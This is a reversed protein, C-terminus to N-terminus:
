RSTPIQYTWTRRRIVKASTIGNRCGFITLPSMATRNLNGHSVLQAALVMGDIIMGCERIKDDYEAQIELLRQRIRRGSITLDEIEDESTDDASCGDAFADASFATNVPTSESSESPRKSTYFRAQILDDCHSIMKGLEHRWSQLGNKLYTIEFWQQMYNEPEQVVGSPQPNDSYKSTPHATAISRARQMLRRVMPNVLDFHRDREIEAFLAPLTLPHHIGYECGALRDVVEERIEESCGYFVGKTSNASPCYTTSLAM